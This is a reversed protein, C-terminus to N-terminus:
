NLLRLAMAAAKWAQRPTQQLAHKIPTTNGAVRGKGIFYCPRRGLFSEVYDLVYDGKAKVASKYSTM